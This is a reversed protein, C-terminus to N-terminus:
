VRRETAIVGEDVVHKTSTTGKKFRQAIDRRSLEFLLVILTLRSLM